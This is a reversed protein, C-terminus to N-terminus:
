GPSYVRLLSEVLRCSESSHYRQLVSSRTVWGLKRGAAVYTAAGLWWYGNGQALSFRQLRTFWSGFEVPEERGKEEALFRADGAALRPRWRRRGRNIMSRGSKRGGGWGQSSGQFLFNSSGPFSTSSSSLIFYSLSPLLFNPERRCSFPIFM